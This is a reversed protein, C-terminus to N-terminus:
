ENRVGQIHKSVRECIIDVKAPWSESEMAKVRGAAREPSDEELARDVGGSVERTNHGIQVLGRVHRGVGYGRSVGAKGRGM